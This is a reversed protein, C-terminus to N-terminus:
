KFIKRVFNKIRLIIGKLVNLIYRIIKTIISKVMYRIRSKYLIEENLSKIQKELELLYLEKGEIYETINALTITFESLLKQAEPTSYDYERCKNKM